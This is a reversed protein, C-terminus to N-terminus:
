EAGIKEVETTESIIYQIDPAIERKELKDQIEEKRRLLDETRQSYFEAGKPTACLYSQARELEQVQVKIELLERRTQKNQSM